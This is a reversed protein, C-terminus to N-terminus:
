GDFCVANEIAKYKKVSTKGLEQRIELMRRVSDTLTDGSLLASVTDKKLDEPAEDLKNELWVNLQSTSNPNDLNSIKVAESILKNKVEASISLAGQVMDMDVAVGRANIRMDTEWQMQIIDPVPINSLKYAVAMETIVDQKNYEKFLEWKEPDHRPLNRTRGGNTKTPACPVCFFRILAKGTNLKRKDESLGLASGIASLGSPYGAYLGKLMTCRWQEIPLAKKFYKSLAYWEFAANYAYKICFPDFIAPIIYKPIKEGNKLDVVVVEANNFSYAFLLVEFDSSEVYRHMGCKKIDCSSFTEIDINLRNM